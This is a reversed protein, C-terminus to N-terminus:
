LEIVNIKVDKLLEDAKENSTKFVYLTKKTRLKLKVYDSRRVVRCETSNEILRKFDNEEDIQKPM